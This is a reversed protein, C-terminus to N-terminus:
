SFTEAVGVGKNKWILKVIIKDIDEFLWTLIKDAATSFGYLFNSVPSREYVSNWNIFVVDRWPALTMSEELDDRNPKWCVFRTGTRQPDHRSSVSGTACPQLGLVSSSAPSNPTWSWSLAIYHTRLWHPGGQSVRDWFLYVYFGLYLIFFFFEGFQSYFSFEKFYWIPCLVM